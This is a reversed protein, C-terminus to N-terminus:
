RLFYILLGAQLLIIAPIGVVFYWHKTKHRFTFMGLYMGISGGLLSLLFLMKESVRRKQHQAAFKDVGCVVFAIVSMALIYGLIIKLEM